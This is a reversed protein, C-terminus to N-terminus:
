NEQLEHFIHMQLEKLNLTRHDQVLTPSETLLLSQKLYSFAPKLDHTKCTFTHYNIEACQPM